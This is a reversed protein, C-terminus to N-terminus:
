CGEVQIPGNIRLIERETMQRLTWTVTGNCLVPKMLTKHLKIKNNRHIQKCRYTTHLSYYATNAAIIRAKFEEKEDNTNSNVSGLYKTSSVAEIDQDTLAM